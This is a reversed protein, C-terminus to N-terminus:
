RNLLAHMYQTSSFIVLQVSYVTSSVERDGDCTIMLSKIDKLRFSIGNNMNSFQVTVMIKLILWSVAYLTGGDDQYM